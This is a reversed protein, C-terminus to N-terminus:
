AALYGGDVHLEAGTIYSAEDSALFSVASAVEAPLGVRGLPVRLLMKELVDGSMSLRNSRMPPMIGPHVSNVRVNERGFQAAATKTMSRIAGKSGSYGFHSRATGVNSAVSAINVIAGKGAKRMMAGAHRMGLFVGTANINMVTNWGDLDDADFMSGSIGANNVLIDLRGHENAVRQLLSSWSSASTVDLRSYSARGGSSVIRGVVATGEKDLVDAVIVEAGDDSLRLAIASGLSGAGGTVLALRDVLKM